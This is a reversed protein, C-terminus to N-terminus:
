HDKSSYFNSVQWSDYAANVLFIPTQILQVVNQPFFCQLYIARSKLLFNELLFWFLFM